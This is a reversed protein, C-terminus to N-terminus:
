YACGDHSFGCPRVFIIIGETDKQWRQAIKNDEEEAIKSYMMFLPWSSDDFSPESQALHGDSVLTISKKTLLFGLRPCCVEPTQWRVIKTTRELCLLLLAPYLSYIHNLTQATKTTKYKPANGCVHYALTVAGMFAVARANVPASGLISCVVPFSTPQVM